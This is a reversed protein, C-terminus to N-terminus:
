NDNGVILNLGEIIANKISETQSEISDNGDLIDFFPKRIILLRYENQPKQIVDWNSVNVLQKRIDRLWDSGRAEDFIKHVNKQIDLLVVFDPGKSVDLPKLAHDTGDLIVGAFLGPIWDDFFSIGSRGWQMKKFTPNYDSRDVASGIKRLNPVKSEWNFSSLESFISFISSEFDKASFYAKVAEPKILEKM